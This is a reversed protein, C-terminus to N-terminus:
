LHVFQPRIVLADKFQLDTGARFVRWSCISAVILTTQLGEGEEWVDKRPECSRRESGAPDDSECHGGSRWPVGPRGRGSGAQVWSGPKGRSTM